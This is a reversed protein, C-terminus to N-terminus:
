CIIVLSCNYFYQQQALFLVVFDYTAHGLITDFFTCSVNNIDTKAITEYAGDNVASKENSSRGAMKSFL